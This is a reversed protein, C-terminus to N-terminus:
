VLISEAHVDCSAVACRVEALQVQVDCTMSQFIGESIIGGTIPEKFWAVCEREMAPGHEALEVDTITVGAM